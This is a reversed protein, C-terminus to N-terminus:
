IIRAYTKILDTMGPDNKPINGYPTALVTKMFMLSLEPSVNPLKLLVRSLIVKAEDVPLSDLLKVVEGIAAATVRGHRSFNECLNIEGTLFKVFDPVHAMCETVMPAEDRDAFIGAVMNTAQEQNIAGDTKSIRDAIASRFNSASMVPRYDKMDFSMIEDESMTRLMSENSSLWLIIAATPWRLNLGYNSM